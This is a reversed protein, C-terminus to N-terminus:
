RRYWSVHCIQNRNGTSSRLWEQIMEDVRDRREENTAQQKHDGTRQMGNLSVYGLNADCVRATVIDKSDDEYVVKMQLHIDISPVNEAALSPIAAREKNRV